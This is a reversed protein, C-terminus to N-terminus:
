IKDDLALSLEVLADEVLEYARSKSLGMRRGVETYSLGSVSRLQLAKVTRRPLRRLAAVARRLDDRAVVIHESDLAAGPTHAQWAVVDRERRQRRLIDYALNRVIRHLVPVADTTPYQKADWRLWSEQVIEEAIAPSEVIKCAVAILRERNDVFAM